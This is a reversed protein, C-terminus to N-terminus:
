PRIGQASEADLTWVVSGNIPAVGQAPLRAPDRTGRLVTKVIAAKDAGMALFEVHEAANIVPLTLTLRAEGTEPQHTVCVTQETEDLVPDFPFLSATHGDAGVGLHVVDIRPVGDGFLARLEERYEAAAREPPLEGKMRHVNAPPIPVRAIFADRAMGFNSRPHEPPVCREDGWLLHVRDWEIAAHLAHAHSAHSAHSTDAFHAYMARPTNGGSLAITARGRRAIASNLATIVADAAAISATHANPLVRIEADTTM